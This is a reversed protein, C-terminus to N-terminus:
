PTLRLVIWRTLSSSSRDNCLFPTPHLAPIPRGKRIPYRRHKTRGAHRNADHEILNKEPAPIAPNTIARNNSGASYLRSPRDAHKVVDLTVNCALRGVHSAFVLNGFLGELNPPTGVGGSVLRSGLIELGQDLRGPGPRREQKAIVESINAALALTADAEFGHVDLAAFERDLETEFTRIQDRLGSQRDDAAEGFGKSITWTM